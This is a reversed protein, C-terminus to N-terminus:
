AVFTKNLKAFKKYVELAFKKANKLEKEVRPRQNSDLVTYTGDTNVKIMPVHEHSSCVFYWKGNVFEKKWQYVKAM